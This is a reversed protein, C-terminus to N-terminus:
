PLQECARSTSFRVEPIAPAIKRPARHSPTGKGESDKSTSQFDEGYASAPRERVNSASAKWMPSRCTKKPDWANDAIEIQLGRKKSHHSSPHSAEIRQAGDGHKLRTEVMTACMSPNFTELTVEDIEKV